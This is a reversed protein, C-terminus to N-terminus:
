PLCSTRTRNREVLEREIDSVTRWPLGAHGNRYAWVRWHADVGSANGEGTPAAEDCGPTGDGRGGYHWRAFCIGRNMIELATLMYLESPRGVEGARPQPEFKAFQNSCVPGEHDVCHHWPYPVHVGPHASWICNGDAREAPLCKVFAVQSEDRADFYAAHGLLSYFDFMGFDIAYQQYAAEFSMGGYAARLRKRALRLVGVPFVQPFYTMFSGVHHAGTTANFLRISAALSGWVIHPWYYVWPRGTAPEFLSRCTVPYSLVVDSDLFAVYRPPTDRGGRAEKEQAVLLDFHLASYFIRWPWPLQMLWLPQDEPYARLRPGAAATLQPLVAPLESRPVFARLRGYCPMFLQLSQLLFPLLSADRLGTYIVVDVDDFPCRAANGYVAPPAASASALTSPERLTYPPRTAPMGVAASSPGDAGLGAVVQFQAVAMAAAAHGRDKAATLWRSAEARDYTVGRGESFMKGICYQAESHNQRAALLYSAAADSDNKVLGVGESPNTTDYLRALKFQAEVIGQDAASRFWRAAEADSRPVGHGARHIYGLNTQAGAHGQSAALIFYRNVESQNQPVGRGVVYLLGLGFQAGPHGQAAAKRYWYAAKGPDASVGDGRDYRGGLEAQAVALGGKASRRLWELSETLNAEVGRGNALSVFWNYQAVPLGGDAARRFWEAAKGEDRSEGEGQSLFTALNLQAAHNGSEAAIRINNTAEARRREAMLDGGGSGTQRLLLIGLDNLARTDGSSAARRYWREAAGFDRERGGDGNELARALLLQSEVDGHGARVELADSDGRDGRPRSSASGSIPTAPPSPHLSERTPLSQRLPLQHPAQPIPSRATESAPTDHQPPSPSPQRLLEAEALRSAGGLEILVSVLNKVIRSDAGSGSDQERQAAVAARLLSEGEALRSNNFRMMGLNNLAISRLSRLESDMTTREDIGAKAGLGFIADDAVALAEDPRSAALLGSAALVAAMTTEPHSRKRLGQVGRWAKVLLSPDRSVQAYHSLAAIADHSGSGFLDRRGLWVRHAHVTAEATRGMADLSLGLRQRKQLWANVVGKGGTAPKPAEAERWMGRLFVEQLEPGGFAQLRGACLAAHVIDFVEARVTDPIGGLHIVRAGVPGVPSRMESNLVGEPLVAMRARVGSHDEDHLAQLVEQDNMSREAALRRWWVDVFRRSWASNRLLIVGNNFDQPRSQETSGDSAARGAKILPERSVLIDAKPHAKALTSLTDTRFDVLIADVDMYLFYDPEAGPSSRQLASALQRVKGWRWVETPDQQSLEVKLEHQFRDAWVANVAAATAAYGEARTTVQLILLRLGGANRGSTRRNIGAISSVSSNACAFRQADALEGCCRHPIQGDGGVSPSRHRKKRRKTASDKADRTSAGAANSPRVFVPIVPVVDIPTDVSVVLLENLHLAALAIMPALKIGVMTL